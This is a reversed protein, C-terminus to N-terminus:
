RGRALLSAVAETIPQGTRREVFLWQGSPNVELFLYRGDPRRRLDFAAYSLGLAGALRQLRREVVPPLAVPEVRARDFVVRFDAPYDTEEAHIAAAFTRKGVLTVRVDTGEVYEQFVIPAYRVLHLRALEQSRVLRTERWDSPTASLAKFVTRGLRRSRVFARARAPDNTVMTRPIDLGLRQAVTLQWPKRSAADDQAPHNVWRADLGLWLGELAGACERYVFDRRAPRVRPDPRYPRPRRWWIAEIRDARVQRGDALALRAPWAGPLGWSMALRIRRPFHALDLLAAAAGRSRLAALVARAHDDGAHSVVLIM